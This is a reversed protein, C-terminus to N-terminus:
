KNIEKIITWNININEKPLVLEIEEPHTIKGEYKDKAKEWSIKIKGYPTPIMGSASDMVSLLPTVQFTEFGSSLPKVGLLYRQFLYAPIASWGHCLSGAYSFDAQGKLTEWFSTAGNYLMSGWDNNIKAFVDGAFEEDAMLVAEFKYLSQSLTTAVLNNNHKLLKKQLIHINPKDAVNALIALAQTLEAFHDHIAQEGIYTQYLKRSEVWFKNNIASATLDAQQRYRIATTKDNCIEFIEAAAQLAMVFFLNLPADFRQGTLGSNVPHVDGEESLGDAWDYFHWFRKGKPSPLLNDVLTKSYIDLMKIIQPLQKQTANIDGSFLLHDRIALFWVMTFSPITFDFQMPACLEQYGDDKLTKSLMYFSVRPVDYEGFTYYGTLAQNRSDNAYLAQERWPTDEYHEHICLHLTRCSVDYVKNFLSDPCFFQGKMNLPYEFPILGAHHLTVGSSVNTFHLQMYRGSYRNTFHTFNQKGNTSIYRSAFNRGGVAARVRLDALHEGVSIDIITGASATLELEIFGCEEREMDVIIYFGDAGAIKSPSVKIANGEFLEFNRRTSLFDHQMLEAITKDTSDIPRKLVGQAIINFPTRQKLLCQKLPREVPLETKVIKVVHEWENSCAYDLSKWDDNLFANYEFTFGM